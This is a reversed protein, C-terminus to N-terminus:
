WCSYGLSSCTPEIERKLFFADIRPIWRAQKVEIGRTIKLEDFSVLTEGLYNELRELTEPTHLTEYQLLLGRVKHHNALFDDVLRKWMRGFKRPTFVPDDPWSNYWTRWQRYSNYADYPNRYIFLFKANPFLWNLYLAHDTGLRVEKLGWRKKGLDNAPAAFLQEFYSIHACLFNQLPPYLNAIWESELDEVFNDIMYKELPWTNTFASLQSALSQIMKAHHYPEGWVLTNGTSQIARQLFTSGSRWGASFIFVPESVNNGHLLPWRSRIVQIGSEINPLNYRYSKHTDRAEKPGLVAEVLVQLNKRM